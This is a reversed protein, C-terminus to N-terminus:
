RTALKCETEEAMPRFSQDAPVTDVLNYLDWPGKSDAQTKVQFLYSPHLAQGDARVTGSGLADDDIGNQKLRQVAARGSRGAEGLDAVAKLYNLVGSYGGAQEQNPVVGGMAARVRNTFARTRDNMDWYFMESLLLGQGTDLGIGHVDNIYMSLGAVQMGGQQLGFEAAQKVISVTDTGSTALGLVDAKSAMAQLIFSSFDTTAPFPYAASSVVSGGAAQIFATADRETNHGFTYDATIFFWRRGGRKVLPVCTTHGNEWSDFTWHVLNPTCYKGIIDSSAAGTNLQCKDRDQCLGALAIAVASNNIDVLCDVGDRDFWQRAIGVGVDPKNQHDAVLVEVDLGRAAVGSDQVAQRACVVVNPGGLDKYPGSMDTLVGLRVSRRAGQARAPVAGPMAGPMAGQAALLASGALFARRFQPM